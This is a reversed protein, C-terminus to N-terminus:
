PIERRHVPGWRSLWEVVADGAKPAEVRRAVGPDPAPKAARPADGAYLRQALDDRAALARDITQPRHTDAGAAAPLLAAVAAIAAATGVHRRVRSIAPRIPRM